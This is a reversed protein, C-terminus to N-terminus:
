LFIKHLIELFESAFVPSFTKRSGTTTILSAHVISLIQRLLYSVSYIRKITGCKGEMQNEQKAHPLWGFVNVKWVKLVGNVTLKVPQPPLKTPPGTHWANHVHITALVNLTKFVLDLVSIMPSVTFRKTTVVSLSPFSYIRM